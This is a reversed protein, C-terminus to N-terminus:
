PNFVRLSKLGLIDQNNEDLVPRMVAVLEEDQSVVKITGKERLRSLRIQSLDRIQMGNRVDKATREDVVLQPWQSLAENLPIVREWLKGEESLELIDDWSVAQEIGFPGSRIRRLDVLHAGCGLKKGWDAALTRIYAGKSCRTQFEVETGNVRLVTLEYFTVTRAPAEIPTGRRAAKYLPVGNVKVASYAPPTQEVRGIFERSAQEICLPDAPIDSSEAIIKGTRDQTDTEVGLRMVARYEKEDELFFRAAKTAQNVCVPLAGTAFPDLTGTHGAKDAKLLRKVRAVVQHSTFGVPKDVVLVGDRRSDM